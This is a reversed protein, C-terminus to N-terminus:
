AQETKGDKREKHIMEDAYRWRWECLIALEENVGLEFDAGYLAADKGYGRARYCGARFWDPVAPAHAAYYQRMTMGRVHLTAGKEMPITHPFVHQRCPEDIVPHLPPYPGVDPLVNEELIDQM